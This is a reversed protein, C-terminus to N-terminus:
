QCGRQGDLRCQRLVFRWDGCGRVCRVAVTMAVRGGAQLFLQIVEAGLQVQFVILLRRPFGISTLDGLEAGRTVLTHFAPWLLAILEAIRRCRFTQLFGGIAHTLTGVLQVLERLLSAREVLCQCRLLLRDEIQILAVQVWTSRM